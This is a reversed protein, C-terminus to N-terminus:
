GATGAAWSVLAGLQRAQLRHRQGVAGALPGAPRGGSPHAGACRGLQVRCHPPCPTTLLRAPAERKHAVAAGGGKGTDGQLQRLRTAGLHPGRRRLGQVGMDAHPAKCLGQARQAAAQRAVWREYFFGGADDLHEFFSRYAESRFFSLRGIEFNSWFHCGTYQRTLWPQRGDEGGGGSDESHQGSRWRRLLSFPGWGAAEDDGDELFAPLLSNPALHQPNAALWQQTTPWLSPITAPVESM